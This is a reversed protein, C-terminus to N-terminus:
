KESEIPKKTHDIESGLVSHPILFVILMVISAILPWIRNKRNWVQIAVAIIWFIFAVLSKNDTLDQGFPWGTWYADFAYKQIVPGLIMGGVLLFLLTLWSLIYTNKGRILAELGTRASLMMALFIILIHPILVSKPVVGKFRIIAPEENLLQREAGRILTIHYMVKGAAPQGPILATLTDGSRTMPNTTWADYSKYRRLRIEGTVAPDKVVIRVPADDSGEFTRILKFKINQTGLVTEGRVPYTPGTMRQYVALTLTLLFSFLWLLLSRLYPKM